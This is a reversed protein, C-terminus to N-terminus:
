EKVRADADIDAASRVEAKAAAAKARLKPDEPPEIAGGSAFWMQLESATWNQCEPPVKTEDRDVNFQSLKSWPIMTQLPPGRPPPRITM